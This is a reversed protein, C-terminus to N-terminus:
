YGHVFSQVHRTVLYAPVPQELSMNLLNRGRQLLDM